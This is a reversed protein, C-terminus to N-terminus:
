LLQRDLWAAGHNRHAVQGACQMHNGLFVSSLAADQQPCQARCLVNFISLLDNRQPEIPSPKSEVPAHALGAGITPSKRIASSPPPSNAMRVLLSASALDAFGSMM